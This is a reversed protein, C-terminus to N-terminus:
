LVRLRASWAANPLSKRTFIIVETTLARWRVCVSCKSETQDLTQKQRRVRLYVLCTTHPTICVHVHCGVIKIAWGVVKVTLQLGVYGMYITSLICEFYCNLFCTNCQPEFYCLRTFRCHEYIELRIMHFLIILINNWSRSLYRFPPMCDGIFMLMQGMSLFSHCLVLINM